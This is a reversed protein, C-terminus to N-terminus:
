LTARSIRQEETFRASLGSHAQISEWSLGNRLAEDFPQEGPYYTDSVRIGNYTTGSHIIRTSDRNEYDHYTMWRVTQAQM